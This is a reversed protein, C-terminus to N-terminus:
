DCGSLASVFMADVSKGLRVRESAADARDRIERALGFRDPVNQVLVAKVRDRDSPPWRIGDFFKGLPDHNGVVILSGDAFVRFFPRELGAGDM